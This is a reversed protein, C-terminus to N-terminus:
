KLNNYLHEVVVNYVSNINTTIMAKSVDEEFGEFAKSDMMTGVVTILLKWDSDFEM